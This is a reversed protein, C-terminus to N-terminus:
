RGAFTWRGSNSGPTSWTYIGAKRGNNIYFGGFDNIGGFIGSIYGSSMQVNEGITVRPPSTSNGRFAFEGINSVNNGIIVNNFQNADFALQGISTVSDPIMVSTLRNTRFASDGILTVSSPISVTVLGKDRLGSNSAIMSVGYPIHISPNNGSYGRLVNSGRDFRIDFWSLNSIQLSNEMISPISDFEFQLIVRLGLQSAASEAPRGNISTIRISLDDIDNVNVGTFNVKIGAHIYPVTTGSSAGGDPMFWGGIPLNATQRGISNGNANLLEVVVSITTTNASFSSPNTISQAPWDLRWTDARGTALLGKRMTRTLRNVTEFYLPEPLGRIDLSLTITERVFDVEGQEPTSSYVLYYIPNERLYRGIFEETERLRAIWQNRWQIDNRVDTGMNGSTFSATISNLRDEAEALGPDFENAQLFYSLAAVETGHWQAIVGRAMAAQANITEPTSARGLENRAMATLQVNMQQLLELTARHIASHDDLEAITATGSFAALTQPNPSTDTVNLQLTYGISTQIISGTMWYQVHPVRGLQVIDLNDEYTLNLTELIVRDLSIRDLVSIASYRSINAVLVGQVMAPLYEQNINLGQSQPPIIGLRMGRGGDGTWLPTTSASPTTVDNPSQATQQRQRAAYDTASSGDPASACALGLVIFIALAALTVIHPTCNKEM